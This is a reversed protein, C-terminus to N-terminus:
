RSTRSSPTGPTRSGPGYTLVDDLLGPRGGVAINDLVPLVSLGSHEPAVPDATVAITTTGVSRTGSVQYSATVPVNGVAVDSSTFAVKVDVAEGAPIAPVEVPTTQWGEPVELALKGADTAKMGQNVIHVALEGATGARYATPPAISLPACVGGLWKLDFHAFTMHQYGFREYLMGISGDPLRSMTSYGASGPDVVRQIPWTEGNDCSMKVTLNRRIGTDPTNSFLLMKSHPDDQAVDPFARLISGNNGQDVLEPDPQLPSYTAGGDSSTAVRRYPNARVNLMVTGDSLEVTKNEDAGPGALAGMRWTAGHDDSYASAAYNGGNYRVTYQQVLRGAYRGHQLQIGEGSAAFLGGWAPDKIMSTIRRHQWTVGDDDSWSYDAHLINPDTDSNGTRSGAYGQNVSSAYFLFIRGTKRDVLLSPDGYGNPAPDSRIVQQTSWTRGGDTSRRVLMAIHSPLDAMTPRGDYAAILTGRTSTTLAPIRYQPYGGEGRFALDTSSFLGNRPPM